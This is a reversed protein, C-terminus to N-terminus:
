TSDELKMWTAFSLIVNMKTNHFIMSSMNQFLNNCLDITYRDTQRATDISLTKSHVEPQGGTRSDEAEPTLTLATIEMGPWHYQGKNYCLPPSQEALVGGKKGRNEKNICTKRIDQNSLHTWEGNKFSTNITYTKTHVQTHTYTYLDSLPM